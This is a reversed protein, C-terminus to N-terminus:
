AAAPAACRSPASLGAYGVRPLVAQAVLLLGGLLVLLAVFHAFGLRSKWSAVLCWVGSVAATGVGVLYFVLGWGCDHAYPWQSVAITFVAALGVKIWTALPRPRSMREAAVGPAAPGAAHKRPGGVLHPDAEPLRALLRNVERMEQDWNPEKEHQM